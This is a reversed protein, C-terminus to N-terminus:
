TLTKTLTFLLNEIQRTLKSSSGSYNNFVISFIYQKGSKSKLYGSYSKVRTLSGSKAQITKGPFKKPDFVTLTGKGASPLSEMFAERNPSKSYMYGLLETFVLPSIATTRSLGSGDDMFIGDMDVGKEKWFKKLYEIGGTRTGLGTKEAAIQMVMHEAFLNVSEYNLAKIIEQLSPSEQIYVLTVSDKPTLGTAYSGAFKVGASDLYDTLSTALVEEPHHVSAKIKFSERNKPITGTIKRVKDLPSGFIYANDSKYDSSTVENLYTVGPVVPSTSIITVPQAAVAPSSFEICSINDFVSLANPGAGYYNGIDDWSWAPPIKENDYLSNDLIIKGEVRKIGKEKIKAAWTKLFHPQFYHEPFYESGLAPDGGGTIYINGTLVSDTIQGSLSIKTKFRYDAGLIELASASSIIKTNSAPILLKNGNLNFIQKKSGPDTVVIGVSANKYDPANLVSKVEAEFQQAHGFQYLAILVTLINLRITM